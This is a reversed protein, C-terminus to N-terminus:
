FCKSPSRNCDESLHGQFASFLSRSIVTRGQTATPGATVFTEGLEVCFAFFFLLSGYPVRSPSQEELLSFPSVLLVSTLKMGARKTWFLSLQLATLTLCTNGKYSGFSHSCSSSCSILFLFLLERWHPFQLVTNGFCLFLGLDLM